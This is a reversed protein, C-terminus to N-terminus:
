GKEIFWNWLIVYFTHNNNFTKASLQREVFSADMYTKAHQVTFM